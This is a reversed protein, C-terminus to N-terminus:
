RQDIDFSRNTALNTSDPRFYKKKVSHSFSSRAKESETVSPLTTYLCSPAVGRANRGLPKENIKNYRIGLEDVLFQSRTAKFQLLEDRLQAVRQHLL